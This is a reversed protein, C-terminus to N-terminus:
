NLYDIVDVTATQSTETIWEIVGVADTVVKLVLHTGADHHGLACGSANAEATVSHFEDTDGNTRVATANMDAAAEIKVWLTTRKAGVIGSLDLDTWATPSAGSFVEANSYTLAVGSGGGGSIPNASM